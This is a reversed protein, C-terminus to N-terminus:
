RTNGKRKPMGKHMLRPKPDYLGMLEKLEQEMKTKSSKPKVSVKTNHGHGVSGSIEIISKPTRNKCETIIANAYAAMSEPRPTTKGHGEISAVTSDSLHALAAIHLQTWGLARRAQVLVDFDFNSRSMIAADVIAGNPDSPVQVISPLGDGSMIIYQNTLKNVSNIYAVVTTERPKNKANDPDEVGKVTSWSSHMDDAVAQISLGKTMKRLHVANLRDHDISHTQSRYALVDYNIHADRDEVIMEPGNAFQNMEDKRDSFELMAM